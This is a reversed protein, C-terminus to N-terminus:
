ISEADRLDYDYVYIDNTLPKLTKEVEEWTGGGRYCGIRPMHISYDTLINKEIYAQLKSFGMELAWYRVPQLNTACKLGHQGFLNCILIDSECQVIQIEGLLDKNGRMNPNQIFISKYKEEPLKWKKSLSVVFGSKFANINNVSHVIIAPKKIPETADGELYTIKM